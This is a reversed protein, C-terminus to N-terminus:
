RKVEFQKSIQRCAEEVNEVGLVASMVAVADAGAARVKDANEKNIGGVGVVPLATQKRVERLRELGLVKGPERSPSPYLPGVSIYDAGESQAAKAEEVSAVSVGIIKAVPLLRRAERVPMDDQGLHVGDADSALVLDLHDNIFFLVDSESCLKRLGRSVDLLERKRLLKDHLQIARAGGRIAQRAVEIHSRDGLLGTDLILYLGSLRKIKDQRTLRSMLEKEITYLSFRAQKYKESNLGIGPLKALEEMVRLSEQVRRSNAVVVSTLDRQKTEGPVELDRGVDGAADRAQILQRELAPGTRVLDHRLNKLQQSLDVSNLLLRSVDELVRLGEGIRNLNADIIRLTQEPSKEMELHTLELVAM